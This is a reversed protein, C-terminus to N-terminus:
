GPALQGSVTRSRLVSLQCACVAQETELDDAATEEADEGHVDGPRDETFRRAPAGRQPVHSRSEV